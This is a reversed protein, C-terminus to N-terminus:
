QIIPRQGLEQMKASPAMISDAQSQAGQLTKAAEDPWFKSAADSQGQAMTAAANQERAIQQSNFDDFAQGYKAQALTDRASKAAAVDADTGATAQLLGLRSANNGAQQEAFQRAIAPDSDGM